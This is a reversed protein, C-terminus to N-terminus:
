RGESENQLHSASASGRVRSLFEELESRDNATPEAKAIASVSIGKDFTAIHMANLNLSSSDASANFDGPALSKTALLFDMQHEKSFSRVADIVADARAGNLPVETQFFPARETIVNRERADGCAAVIVCGAVIWPLVESRM